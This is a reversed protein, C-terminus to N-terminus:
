LMQASWAVPRPGLVSSRAALDAPTGPPRGPGAPGRGRSPPFPGSPWRPTEPPDSGGALRTAEGPQASGRGVPGLGRSSPIRGSAV